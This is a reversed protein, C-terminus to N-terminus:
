LSCHSSNTDTWVFRCSKIGVKATYNYAVCVVLAFIEINWTINLYKMQYKKTILWNYLLLMTGTNRIISYLTLLINETVLYLLWRHLRIIEVPWQTIAKVSNVAMCM